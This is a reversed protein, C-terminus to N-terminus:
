QAKSVHFYFEALPRSRGNKSSGRLEIVYDGAQLAKSRLSFTLPRIKLAKSVITKGSITKLTAKYSSHQTGHYNLQFDLQQENDHLALSRIGKAGTTFMPDLTILLRPTSIPLHEIRALSEGGAKMKIPLEARSNDALNVESIVTRKLTAAEASVEYKGAPLDSMRYTGDDLTMINRVVGTATNKASVTAKRVPVGNPDLVTGSLEIALLSPNATPKNEIRKVHFYYEEITELLGPKRAGQLTM